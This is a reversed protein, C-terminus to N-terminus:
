GGDVMEVWETLQAQSWDAMREPGRIWHEEQVM